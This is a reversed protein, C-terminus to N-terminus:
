IGFFAKLEKLLCGSASNEIKPSGNILAIKM